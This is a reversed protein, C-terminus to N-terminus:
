DANSEMLGKVGFAVIGDQPLNTIGNFFVSDPGQAMSCIGILITRLDEKQFLDANGHKSAPPMDQEMSQYMDYVYKYFVEMTPFQESKLTDVNENYIELADYFDMFLVELVDLERRSFQKYIRFFDKLFSIHMQLPKGANHFPEPSDSPIKESVPNVKEKGTEKKLPVIDEVAWRKPELITLVALGVTIYCPLWFGGYLASLVSIVALVGLLAVAKLSWLWQTPTVGLDKPYRYTKM